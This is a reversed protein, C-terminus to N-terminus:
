EIPDDRERVRRVRDPQTRQKLRERTVSPDNRVQRVGLVTAAAVLAGIWPRWREPLNEEPILLVLGVAWGIAAVIAKRYRALNRM